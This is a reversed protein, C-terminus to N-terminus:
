KIAILDSAATPDPAASPTLLRRAISSWGDARHCGHVELRNWPRNVLIGATGCAIAARVHRPADDVLGVAKLQTALVGKCDLWKMVRVEDFCSAVNMRELWDYTVELGRPHWARATAMVLRFCQSLDNLASRAGPELPARSLVEHRYMLDLADDISLGFNQSLDSSRWSEPPHFRGERALADRLAHRTGAVTDDCDIILVPKM